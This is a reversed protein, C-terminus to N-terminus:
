LLKLGIAANQEPTGIWNGTKAAIEQLEQLFEQTPAASPRTDDAPVAIKRMVAFIDTGAFSLVRVLVQSKNRWAHRIGSSLVVLEGTRIIEWSGGNEDGTYGEMEGELLFFWEPGAHSHLPVFVGPHLVGILVDLSKEQFAVESALFQVFAGGVNFLPAQESQIRFAETNM